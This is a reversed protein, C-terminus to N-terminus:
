RLHNPPFDDRDFGGVVTVNIQVVEIGFGFFVRIGQRPAHDSVWRCMAHEFFGHVFDAFDRMLEATLNVDVTRIHVGHNAQGTRSIQAAIHAVQVQVFGKGDRVTAAAGAHSWNTDFLMQHWM